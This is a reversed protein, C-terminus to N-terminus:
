DQLPDLISPAGPGTLQAPLSPVVNFVSPEVSPNVSGTTGGVRLGLKLELAPLRAASGPTSATGTSVWLSHCRAKGSVCPPWDGRLSAGLPPSVILLHRNPSCPRTTFNASDRLFTKVIFFFFFFIFAVSVLIKSSLSHIYPSVFKVLVLWGNNMNVFGTLSSTPAM